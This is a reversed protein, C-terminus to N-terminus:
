GDEEYQRKEARTAKRASIIRVVDERLAYVVVLLRGAPDRGMTVLRTEDSSEDTITLALEDYLVMAADAFDIGHKAVNAAAKAADWEIEM